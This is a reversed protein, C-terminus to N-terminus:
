GIIFFSCGECDSEDSNHQIDYCVYDDYLNGLLNGLSVHGMEVADGQDDFCWENSPSPDVGIVNPALWEEVLAANDKDNSPAPEVSTPNSMENKKAKARM